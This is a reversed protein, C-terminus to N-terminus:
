SLNNKLNNFIKTKLMELQIFIILLTIIISTYTVISHEFTRVSSPLSFLIGLVVILIGSVILAKIGKSKYRVIQVKSSEQKQIVKLIAEELDIPENIQDISRLIEKLQDKDEM